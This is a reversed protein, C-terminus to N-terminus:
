PKPPEIPGVRKPVKPATHNFSMGRKAILSAEELKTKVMALYRGDAILPTVTSLCTDFAEAITHAHAVGQETLDTVGFLPDM